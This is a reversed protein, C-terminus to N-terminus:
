LQVVLKRWTRTFVAIGALLAGASTAAVVVYAWWPAFQGEYLWARLVLVYSYLPNAHIVWRFHDPVISIPYFVPTLYVLLQLLVNTIELVDHFAAAAAAVLLAVGVIFAILCVVLLPVLLVTWPIGIGTVVQLCLIPVLTIVFTSAAALVASLSFTEAPVRVKTLISASNVVASGGLQVGQSFFTVLVVGSLVYIIFPVGPIEFRFVQSFVLWMTLATTIPNLVSWGVGLFSRKYRVTLDRGVLLRLLGRCRWIEHFGGLLTRRQMDSDYVVTRSAVAM